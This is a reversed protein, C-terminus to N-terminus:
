YPRISRSKSSLYLGETVQAKLVKFSLKFLPSWRIQFKGQPVFKIPVFKWRPRIKRPSSNDPSMNGEPVFKGTVWGFMLQQFIFDSVLLHLIVEQIFLICIIYIFTYCCKSAFEANQTYSFEKVSWNFFIKHYLLTPVRIIMTNVNYLKNLLLYTNKQFFVYAIGKGVVEPFIRNGIHIHIHRVLVARRLLSHKIPWTSATIFTWFCNVYKNDACWKSTNFINQLTSERM